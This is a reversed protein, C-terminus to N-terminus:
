RLIVSTCLTTMFIVLLGAYSLFSFKFIFKIISYIVSLCCISFFVIGMSGILSLPKYSFGFIGDSALKLMKKLSYKTKGELRECREYEFAVQNFGLWSFLGRLFKNHEPMENIADIVKRDVLRFDGTDKPIDVDSMKALFKYFAKATLLKFFTEGERAKRKAYVVDAGEEWLKLMDIICEPPDQMDADIICVVDGTIEKLGATVACQHGFNRSFSVVKVNEDKAAIERLINLTDDKSGDDVFVLEHEMNELSCCVNKIREYCKRAVEQEYYMPIVVSLKNM